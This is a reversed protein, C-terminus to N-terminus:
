CVRRVLGWCRVGRWSLMGSKVRSSPHRRRKRERVSRGTGKQSGPLHSPSISYPDAASGLPQNSCARLDIKSVAVLTVSTMSGNTHLHFHTGFMTERSQLQSQYHVWRESASEPVLVTPEAERENLNGDTEMGGEQGRKLM